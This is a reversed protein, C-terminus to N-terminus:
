LRIVRLTHRCQADRYPGDARAWGEGPSTQACTRGGNVLSHWQFWPAPAAQASGALLLAAVALCRHLPFLRM